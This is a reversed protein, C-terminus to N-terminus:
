KYTAVKPQERNCWKCVCKEKEAKCTWGQPRPSNFQHFCYRDFIESSQWKVIAPYHGIKIIFARNREISRNAGWQHLEQEGRGWSRLQSAMWQTATNRIQRCLSVRVDWCPDEAICGVGGIKRAGDKFLCHWSIRSQHIKKNIQGQNKCHRWKLSKRFGVCWHYRQCQHLIFRTSDRPLSKSFNLM